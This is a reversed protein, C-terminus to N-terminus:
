AAEKDDAVLRELGSIPETTNDAEHLIEILPREGSGCSLTDFELLGNEPPRGMGKM